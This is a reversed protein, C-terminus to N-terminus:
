ATQWIRLGDGVYNLHTEFVYATGWADLGNGLFNAMEWIEFDNEM